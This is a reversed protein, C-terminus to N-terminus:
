GLTEGSQIGSDLPVTTSANSFQIVSVTVNDTGGRSLTLDILAQSAERSRRGTMIQGIELDSLHATLGDSCLLFADGVMMETDVYDLYPASGVGIAHTIANRHPYTEAEQLTLVGSDILRQVETHDRTLLTLTDGRLLYARSDGCWYCRSVRGYVLLCVLTSGVIKNGLKLSHDIIDAHAAAIADRFSNELAAASEALTIRARVNRVITESAFDGADHGGMGDAVMWLGNHPDAYSRDENIDRVCGVDSVAHSEIRFVAPNM